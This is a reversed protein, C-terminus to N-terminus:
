ADVDAGMMIRVDTAARIVQGGFVTGPQILSDRVISVFSFVRM